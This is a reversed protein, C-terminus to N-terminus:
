CCLVFHHHFGAFLPHPVETTEAQDSHRLSGRLVLTRLRPMQLSLTQHNLYTAPGVVGDLYEIRDAVATFEDVRWPSSRPIPVQRLWFGTRRRGMGVQKVCVKLGTKGSRQVLLRAQNAPLFPVNITSWLKYASLAVSRLRKSVLTVKMLQDVTLFVSFKSSYNM